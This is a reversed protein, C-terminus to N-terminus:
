LMNCTQKSPPMNKHLQTIAIFTHPKSFNWSFHSLTISEKQKKISVVEVKSNISLITQM